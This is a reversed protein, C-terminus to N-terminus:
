VYRAPAKAAALTADRDYRHGRTAVLVYTNFNVPIHEFAREFETVITDEADPFREPNAFEPRDDVVFIRFGLTRALEYVAKGVHGGGLIVLAPPAAFGEVFVEVGDEAVLYDTKGVPAVEPAVRKAQEELAPHELSGLTSGDERVLMRTGVRAQAEKPAAVVTALAVAPGGSFAGLIEQLYSGLQPEDVPELYFFMTGGCVLGDKAAVDEDLYYSRLQPGSKERLMEKAYFWIDGEVCGGGLTGVPRGKEPILQKAGPKQPTMGKTRVVTALVCSEGKELLRAAAEVVRKM